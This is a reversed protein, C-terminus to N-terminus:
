AAAEVAAHAADTSAHHVAGVIRRRDGPETVLTAGATDVAAVSKRDRTIRAELRELVQGDSLDAGRPNLRDHYIQRPLPTRPNPAYPSPLLALPDAALRELPVASDAVQHVFSTNAGNELLRRVLYALLDRHSGVPASVRCPLGREPVLLDYLADGMGHLKQFEFARKDGACALVFSVTHCNHTAFQPFIREGAGLLTQACAMYSLDTASKRTYVPYGEVGLVQALKIETDWYAGKVLRVMIGRETAAALLVLWD